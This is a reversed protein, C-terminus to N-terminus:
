EQEGHLKFAIIEMEIIQKTISAIPNKEPVDINLTGIRNQPEFIQYM